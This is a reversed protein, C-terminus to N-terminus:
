IFHPHKSDWSLPKCRRRESSTLREDRDKAFYGVPGRANPDRSFVVDGSRPNIFYRKAGSPMLGPYEGPDRHESHQFVYQRYFDDIQKQTFPRRKRDYVFSDSLALALFAIPLVFIGVVFSGIPLMLDDNICLNWFFLSLAILLMVWKTIKVRIYGHGKKDHLESPKVGMEKADRKMKKVSKRLIFWRIVAIVFLIFWFWQRPTMHALVKPINVDM